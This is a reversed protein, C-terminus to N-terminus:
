LNYELEVFFFDKSNEALDALAKMSPIMEPASFNPKSLWMNRGTKTQPLLNGKVKNTRLLTFHTFSELSGDRLIRIYGSGTAEFKATLGAKEQLVKSATKDLSEHANPEGHLFGIMGFTPHVLRKRLLWEGKENRVMLFFVSHAQELLMKSNLNITIGSAMGLPTLHYSGDENKAILKQTILQRIHYTFVNSDVGKPKLEAFRAYPVHVLKQVVEKQLHHDFM